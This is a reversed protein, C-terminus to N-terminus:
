FAVLPEPMSQGWISKLGAIKLITNPKFDAGHWIFDVNYYPKFECDKLAENSFNILDDFLEDKIAVGFANGHGQAYVVLESNNLFTRFDELEPVPYGRGSGEWTISGDDHKVKSLILVPHQYKAVLQNAMLGTLNRDIQHDDDLKVAIIKNKYLKKDEIIKIIM